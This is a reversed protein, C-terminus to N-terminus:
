PAPAPPNTRPATPGAPVLHRTGDQVQFAAGFSQGSSPSAVTDVYWWESVVRTADADVLMYGRRSLDIYKFHPNITRLTSAALGFTDYFSPSTVSTDVFEVARSGAGSSEDYGGSALDGNNPDQTLDAAWSSHADGTLVVVNDVAPLGGSGKLVDFLRDRAPQYGDWQDPNIFRGGGAANTAPLIKLQALMVGQGVFKWKATSSRVRGALWDHQEAGLMERSPDAFAGDQTFVNDISTNTPLQPSRALVREELMMLDVLNGYAFSRYDKRPNAADVVRVPMWEYHAQLAAAVRATWTGEAGETHNQSGTVNANSAIDHDDWIAIMPHQRHLEQLDADRRYQAYRTRYDSLTVTETAPEHIRVDGSSAGHEYIYDGLHLVLDLDAREAVRRYANFYGQALNSCSVVALRLRSANGAPLTRTRGVASTAGGSSFRYYYTTQAQLGTVDTKVTYDATADASLSQRVVISSFGPDTAVVCELSVSGTSAPTVRTWLIVRDALPDGSAVGHRFTGSGAPIAVPDDSGGGCAALLSGTGLAVAAAGTRRLFNRRSTGMRRVTSTRIRGM